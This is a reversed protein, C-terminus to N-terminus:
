DEEFRVFSAGQEVTEGDGQLTSQDYQRAGLRIVTVRVTWRMLGHEEEDPPSHRYVIEVWWAPVECAKSVQEIIRDHDPNANM